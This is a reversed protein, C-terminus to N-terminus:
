YTRDCFMRLPEYHFSFYAIAAISQWKAALTFGYGLPKSFNGGVTLLSVIHLKVVSQIINVIIFHNIL